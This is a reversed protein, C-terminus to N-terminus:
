PLDSGSWPSSLPFRVLPRTAMASRLIPTAISEDGLLL